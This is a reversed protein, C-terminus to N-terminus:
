AAVKAATLDRIFLARAVDNTGLDKLIIALAQDAQEQRTLLPPTM